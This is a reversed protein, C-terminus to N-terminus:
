SSLSFSSNEPEMKSELFLTDVVLESDDHSFPMEGGLAEQQEASRLRGEEDKLGDVGQWDNGSFLPVFM